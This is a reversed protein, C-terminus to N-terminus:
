YFLTVEVVTIGYVLDDSDDIVDFELVHAELDVVSVWIKKGFVAISEAEEGVVEFIKQQLQRKRKKDNEKQIDQISNKSAAVYSPESPLKFVQHDNYEHEQLAVHFVISKIKDSFAGVEEVKVEFVLTDISDHNKQVKEDHKINESQKKVKVKGVILFDFM